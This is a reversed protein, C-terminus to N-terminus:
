ALIPCGTGLHVACFNSTNTIRVQQITMGFSLKPENRIENAFELPLM